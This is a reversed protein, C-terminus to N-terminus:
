FHLEFGNLNPKIELFERERLKQEQAWFQHDGARQCWSASSSFVGRALVFLSGTGGNKDSVPPM